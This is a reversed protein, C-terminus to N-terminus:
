RKITVTGNYNEGGDIEIVYYYSATPLVVGNYKGDWPTDYNKSQFVRNGWRNFVKVVDGEQLGLVEWTDNVGDGNPTFANPIDLCPDGETVVVEIEDQCQNADTVTLQYTGSLVGNITAETDGTSWSFSYPSNGNESVATVSGQGLSVCGSVTYTTTVEYVTVTDSATCDNQDTITVMYTGASVNNLDESSAGTSWEYSYPEVGDFATLNIDALGNSNCQNLVTSAKLSDLLKIQYSETTICNGENSIVSLFYNGQPANTIDETNEGTSWEYVYPQNNGIATINISGTTENSCKVNNVLSIVEPYEYSQIVIIDNLTCSANDVVALNYTGAGIGTLDQSSSNVAGTWSVNYPPTGGSLNLTIYGNLNGECVGQSYDPNIALTNGSEILNYTLTDYCSTNDQVVFNYIGAPMNTFTESAQFTPNGSITYSFPSHSGSAQISVSGNNSGCTPNQNVIVNDINLDSIEISIEDFVACDDNGVTVSYTGSVLVSITQTNEGTSWYYNAGTNGADLTVVECSFIDEGLDVIFSDPNCSPLEYWEFNLGGYNNSFDNDGYSIEFMPPNSSSCFSYYFYYIHSPNYDSPSPVFSSYPESNAWWSTGEVSIMNNTSNYFNYYADQYGSDDSSVDSFTGSVKLMYCKGSAPTFSYSPAAMGDWNYSSVLTQSFAIISISIFVFILFILRM